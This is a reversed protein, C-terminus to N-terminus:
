LATSTILILAFIQAQWASVEVHQMRVCLFIVPAKLCVCVCVCVCIQTCSLKASCAACSRWEATCDVPGEIRKWTTRGPPRVSAARTCGEINGSSSSSGHQQNARAIAAVLKCTSLSRDNKQTRNQCVPRLCHAM